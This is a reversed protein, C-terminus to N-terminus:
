KKKIMKKIKKKIKKNSKAKYNNKKKETQEELVVNWLLPISLTKEDSFEIFGKECNKSLFIFIFFFFFFFGDDNFSISLM